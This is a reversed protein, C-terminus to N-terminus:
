SHAGSFSSSTTGSAPATAPTATGTTPAVSATPTATPTTTTTPAAFLVLKAILFGHEKVGTILVLDGRKLGKSNTFAAQTTTRVPGSAFAGTAATMSTTSATTAPTTAPASVTAANSTITITITSTGTNITLTTPKAAPAAMSSAAATSGAVTTAAPTMNGTTTATTAASTSGTMATMSTTSVTANVVKTGSLWWLHQSGNASKVLVFHKSALEVVGRQAAFTTHHVQAQGFTRMSTMHSLTTLARSQQGVQMATLASSVATGMSLTHGSDASYGASQATTSANHGNAAVAVAGIAGGGLVVAAALGARAKM